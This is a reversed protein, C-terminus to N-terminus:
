KFTFLDNDDKNNLPLPEILDNDKDSGNTSIITYTLDDDPNSDYDEDVIKSNSAYLQAITPNINSRKPSNIKKSAADSNKNSNSEQNVAPWAVNVIYEITHFIHKREAPSCSPGNMALLASSTTLTIIYLLLRNYKAM